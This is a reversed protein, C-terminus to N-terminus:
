HEKMEVQLVGKLLEQSASRSTIFERLKQKDLFTKIEGENRLYLKALYLTRPQSNKEKLVKLIDDEKRRAQLCEATFDASQRILTGKYIVKKEGPVRFIREKDKIKSTKTHM